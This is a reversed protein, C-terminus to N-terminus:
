QKRVAQRDTLEPLGKRESFAWESLREKNEM